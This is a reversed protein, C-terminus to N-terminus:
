KFGSCRFILGLPTTGVSTWLSIAILLEETIMSYMSTHHLYHGKNNAKEEDASLSCLTFNDFGSV